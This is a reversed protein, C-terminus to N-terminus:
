GGGLRAVPPVRWRGPGVQLFLELSLKPEPGCSARVDPQARGCLQAVFLAANLPLLNGRCLLGGRRVPALTPQRPYVGYLRTPQSCLMGGERFRRHSRSEPLVVRRERQDVLNIKVAKVDGLRDSYNLLVKAEVFVAKIAPATPVRHALHHTDCATALVRLAMGSELWGKNRPEIRISIPVSFTAFSAQVNPNARGAWGSACVGCSVVM